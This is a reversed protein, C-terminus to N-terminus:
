HNTVSNNLKSCRHFIKKFGEQYRKNMLGYIIPNYASNAYGLILTTIDATRSVNEGSFVSIFMTICFPLWSIIFTVIVVLLSIALKIEDEQKKDKKDKAIKDKNRTHAAKHNDVPVNLTNNKDFATEKNSKTFQSTHLRTGPLDTKTGTEMRKRSKRVELLLRVYCISMISCPGGFCVAVMFLTYSISVKWDCFCMSQTPIYTYVGWGLVPPCSICASFIWIGLIMFLTNKKNYVKNYRQTSCIMIYRNISINCLSLVSGVLTLMNVFGSIMCMEDGFTWVGTVIAVITMPINFIGVFIDAICLCLVFTNAYT